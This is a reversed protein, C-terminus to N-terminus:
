VMEKWEVYWYRGVEVLRGRDAVNGFRGGGWRGSRDLM